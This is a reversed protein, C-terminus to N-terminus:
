ELDLLEARPQGDVITLLGVSRPNRFRKRGASAPNFFLVPGWPAPREDLCQQHSHGFIAVRTAPPVPDGTTDDDPPTFIHKMYIGVGDVILSTAEPLYGLETGADVNGCVAIVPALHSLEALMSASGVDGGHLILDVEAYLEWVKPDLLGHTDCIVGIRTTSSM